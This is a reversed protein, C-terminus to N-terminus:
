IIMCFSSAAFAAPRKIPAVSDLILFHSLKLPRGDHAFFAM